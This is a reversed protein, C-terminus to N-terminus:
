KKKGKTNTNTQERRIKLCKHFHESDSLLDHIYLMTVCYRLRDSLSEAKLAACKTTKVNAM